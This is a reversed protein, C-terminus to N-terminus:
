KGYMDFFTFFLNNMSHFLISYVIGYKLRCYSFIIGSVTQPFTILPSVLLLQFKTTFNNVHLLVFSFLFLYFIMRSHKYWFTALKTNNLSNVQLYSYIIVGIISALAIKLVFSSNQWFANEGNVIFGLVFYIWSAMMISFNRSSYRLCLRHRIEEVIPVIIVGIAYIHVPDKQKLNILIKNRPIEIHFIQFIITIIFFAIVLIIIYVGLMAFIDKIIGRNTSNISDL